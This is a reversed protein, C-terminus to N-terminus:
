LDERQTIKITFNILILVFTLTFFARSLKSLTEFEKLDIVLQENIGYSPLSLDMKFVPIEPSAALIKICAYIDWPLSFPFKTKAVNAVPAFMTGLNDLISNVADLVDGGTDLAGDLLGKIWETLLNGIISGVTSGIGSGIGSGGGDIKIDKIAQVVDSFGKELNKLLIDFKDLLRNFNSGLNNYLFDFINVLSEGITGLKKFIDSVKDFFSQMFVSPNKIVTLIAEVKEYIRKLWRAMTDKLDEINGGIDGLEGIIDDYKKDILDQRKDPDTTQYENRIDNYINNNTQNWNTNNLTNQNIVLTNNNNVNFNNFNTTTYINGGNLCYSKLDKLSYFVKTTYGHYHTQFENWYYGVKDWYPSREMGTSSNDNYLYCMFNFSNFNQDVMKVLGDGIYFYIQEAPSCTYFMNNGPSIFVGSRNVKIEEKVKLFTPYTVANLIEYVRDLDYAPTVLYYGNMAQMEEKAINYINNVVSNDISVNGKGDDVTPIKDDSFQQFKDSNSIMSDLDGGFLCGLQTLVYKLKVFQKGVDGADAFAVISCSVFFMVSMCVALVFSVIRRRKFMGRREIFILCSFM